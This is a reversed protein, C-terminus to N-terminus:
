AAPPSSLTLAWDPWNLTTGDAGTAAVRDLGSRNEVGWARVTLGAAHAAEVLSADLVDARPCIQQLGADVVRKIADTTFDATLWGVTLDPLRWHAECASEWGFSSVHLDARHGLQREVLLDALPPGAAPAKIELCLVGRGLYRDLFDDLRVIRQAAWEAGFWAGANLAQLEAWTFEAVPGIGDTTRDVRQDHVLVLVGDRTLQVDTELGGAGQVLGLDFAALTNEPAYGSAGRHALILV